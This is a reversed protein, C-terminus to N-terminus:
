ILEMCAQKIYGKGEHCPAILFRGIEAENKEQCIHYVAAQGVPTKNIEVIFHFDNEKDRYKEFWLRHQDLTIYNSDNFWIRADDRNRWALILPLDSETLLRLRIQENGFPNIFPKM